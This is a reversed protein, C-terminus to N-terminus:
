NQLLGCLVFSIIPTEFDLVQPSLLIGGSLLTNVPRHSRHPKTKANSLPPLKQTLNTHPNLSIIYVHLVSLEGDSHDNSDAATSPDM